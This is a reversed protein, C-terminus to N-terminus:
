KTTKTNRAIDTSPKWHYSCPPQQPYSTVINQTNSIIYWIHFYGYRGQLFTKLLIYPNGSLSPDLSPNSFSINQFTVKCLIIAGMSTLMKKRLPRSLHNIGLSFRLRQSLLNQMKDFVRMMLVWPLYSQFHYTWRVLFINTSQFRLVKCMSWIIVRPFAILLEHNKKLPYPSLSWGLPCSWYLNDYKTFSTLSITHLFKYELHCHYM